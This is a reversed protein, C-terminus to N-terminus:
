QFYLSKLLPREVEGRVLELCGSTLLKKLFKINSSHGSKWSIIHGAIPYQALSLDGIMDLVKHRAFEDPFRLGEENLIREEDIVVANHLTGGLALGNKRLYEVDRLFGFTRAPAIHNLYTEENLDISIAQKRLPGSSLELNYTFRRGRYPLAMIKIGPEEYLLPKKLEFYPARKGQNVIGAKLILEVFKLASGDMAPIESGEIEILINDINLGSLTALLHEVTRIRVGDIGITTAFATDIVHQITAKIYVGRDKRYFIIGHDRPAPKLRVKAYRGSHLGIGEFYVENKITRQHRM